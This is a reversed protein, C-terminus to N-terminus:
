QIAETHFAIQTAFEKAKTIDSENFSYEITEAPTNNFLKITISSADIISAILSFIMENTEELNLDTIEENQVYVDDNSWAQIDRLDGIDPKSSLFFTLEFATDNYINQEYVPAGYFDFREDDVMYTMQDYKLIEINYDNSIQLNLFYNNEDTVNDQVQMIQPYIKPSSKIMLYFALTTSNSKDNYKSEIQPNSGSSNNTNSGSMSICGTLMGILIFLLLLKINKM